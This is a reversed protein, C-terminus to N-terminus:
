IVHTMDAVSHQIVKAPYSPPNNYTVVNNYGDYNGNTQHQPLNYHQNGNNNHVLM